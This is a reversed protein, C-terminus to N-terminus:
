QKMAMMLFGSFAANSPSLNKDVRQKAANILTRYGQYFDWSPTPKYVLDSVEFYEIVGKATTPKVFVEENPAYYAPIISVLSWKALKETKLLDVMAEFGLQQKGHLMRSLANVLFAKENISMRNVFEKFRPKEFMSVMSSRSVAKIMNDATEEIDRCKKKSFAAQAFEIMKDMRHKKGIKLMEPHEFGGPYQACFNSAAVQLKRENLM